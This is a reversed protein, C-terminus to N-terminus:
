EKDPKPLKYLSHILALKYAGDRFGAFRGSGGGHGSTFDTKLLLLNDDTKTARLKAVMKAPEWYGVRTDNLGTFFLLNPYNQAKVNDYPSYSKIYNYYTKDKPNGWEEFEGVTLPLNEDLMTNIVDVFPVNLIVTNFLEPRQNVVAGMLLGGASGGEAVITGEKAYGESILYEACTIFDSFTNKKSLLKGDQYWEEGLDNGGRVHAIAYVYNTNVLHKVIPGRALGQGSGYAGYSTLYVKYQGGKRKARWKDMILTLPIQKGDKATVWKREVVYRKFRHVLPKGYQKVLRKEKTKMNYNFTTSPTKFTSYGFQLSDTKFDPNYGIGINYFDEELKIYHSEQNTQDIVKIRSQAKEKEQVVLYDDFVQFGEIIVGPQHPIIDTWKGNPVEDINVTAIKYNLADKNSVMYFKDKYHSVGYIHGKERPKVLKFKGNPNDTKLFWTESTTSSASTIFIYDKSKSKNINVSFAPDKEEYIVTDNKPDTGLIHKLIKSSRLTQKEENAYLFSTDDLWVMRGVRQISDTLYSHRNLDKIKLTYDDRGTTNEYVAMLTNNPSVSGAVATYFAKDKALTNVNLLEVEATDKEIGKRYYIPYEDDESYKSYYMYGNKKVPLSTTNKEIDSVLQRYIERQMKRLPIFYNDAYKNEQHLYDMVDANQKPAKTDKLWAYNDTYTEGHIKYTLQEKKAIPAPMSDNRVHKDKFQKELTKEFEMDARIAKDITAIANKSTYNQWYDADYDLAHEYLQNANVNAFNDEKTISKVNETAINTTNFESIASYYTTAQSTSDKYIFEDEHRMNDIYYRKNKKKFSVDLKYDFHKIANYKYGCFYKKLHNPVSCEYRVIALDEQNIYIKGKLLKRNNARKWQRINRKSELADLDAKTTKTHFELVYLWNGNQDMEESIKYTFDRFAKKGLFSELYKVRDRAFLGLPGGEINSHFDRKSLSASSRSEIINVKEDKLTTHHFHIRHLGESYANFTGFGLSFDYPFQYDDWKHKDTTYPTAYYDCVADSFKIYVDNEKLTERYYGSVMTETNSYNKPINKKVKKLLAKPKPLKKNKTILVEELSVAESTMVIAKGNKTRFDAVTLTIDEFGLYSITVNYTNYKQPIKIKFNGDGDTATGLGTKEIKIYAYPLPMATDDDVIKGTITTQVPNQLANGNQQAFGITALFLALVVNLHKYMFETILNLFVIVGNHM